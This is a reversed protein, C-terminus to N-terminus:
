PALPAAHQAARFNAASRLWERGVKRAIRYSLVIAISAPFILFLLSGDLRLDPMGFRITGGVWIIACAGLQVISILRLYNRTRATNLRYLATAIGLLIGLLLGLFLGAIGGYLVGFIAGYILYGFPAGPSYPPASVTFVGLIFGAVAGYVAGATSGWLVGFGTMRSIFFRFLQFTRM